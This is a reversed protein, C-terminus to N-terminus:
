SAEKRVRVPGDLRVTATSGADIVADLSQTAVAVGTGAVAGVAAGIATSRRDRGAVRGVIAGVAAGSAVKAATETRSDANVRRVAPASVMTVAIPWRDGGHRISTFTVALEAGGGARTGVGARTVRGSVTAGAPIVTRGEADTLAESLTATFTSGVGASASVSRDMRVSFTTGGPVTRTVYRPGAPASPAPASPRSPAPAAAAPAPAPRAPAATRALLPSAPFTSDPLAADELTVAASSDDLALKLDRELAERELADRRTDEPGGCAVVLLSLALAPAVLLAATKRTM